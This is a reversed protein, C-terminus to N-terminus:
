IEKAALAAKFKDWAAVEESFANHNSAIEVYERAAAEIKRLRENEARLRRIEAFLAPAANRLELVLYLDDKSSKLDEHDNSWFVAQNNPARITWHRNGVLPGGNLACYQWPAPTAFRELAELKDIDINIM